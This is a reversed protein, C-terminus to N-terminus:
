IVDYLDEKETETLLKECDLLLKVENGVKGISKIFRNSNGRNMQPPDIIDQEGISLVEAVSDVILGISLENIEIVIICTRDNYEEYNKKFRLRVDMVPIIKGRLNIIGRIYESLDPLETIPQIGIIETVYKIEIGYTEKGLAFTLFRGKQTDEEMEEMNEMMETMRTDGKKTKSDDVRKRDKSSINQQIAPPLQAEKGGSDMKEKRITHLSAGESNTPLLERDTQKDENEDELLTLELEKLFVIQLFLSYLTDYSSDSKFYIQFGEKQIVQASDDNEIINNPYYRIEQLSKKLNQIISFARINEMQAGEEFFIVAKYSYMKDTYQKMICDEVSDLYGPSASPQKLIGLFKGIKIELASYEGNPSYGNRIKEVEIKIFDVCELIIDSLKSYDVEMPKDDRIYCFLDEMAHALSTINDFMMMASSGKITHMIRFIEKISDDSYSCARESSLIINEMQEILQSTEFLYMDLMANNSFQESM